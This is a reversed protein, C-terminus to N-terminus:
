LYDCGFYPIKIYTLANQLNMSEYILLGAQEAEVLRREAQAWASSTASELLDDAEACLRQFDAEEPPAETPLLGLGGTKDLPM